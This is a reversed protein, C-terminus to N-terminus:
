TYPVYLAHMCVMENLIKVITPPLFWALQDYTMKSNNRCFACLLSDSYCPHEVQVCAFREVPQCNKCLFGFKLEGNLHIKSCVEKLSECLTYCLIHHSNPLSGEKQHIEVSIYNIKDFLILYEKNSAIQFVVLNKYAVNNQLKWTKNKISLTVLCCFAGRPIFGDGFRLYLTSFVKTGFTEDVSMDTPAPDLLAPMFYQEPQDSLRAMINLHVFLSLFDEYKFLSKSNFEKDYVEALFIKKFIGKKISKEAVYSPNYKLEIIKTLQNFLWQPDSFVVHKLNEVGKYYLLIGLEHFFSLIDDINKQEIYSKIAIEDCDSRLICPGDSQLKIEYQFLMWSIPIEKNMIDNNSMNEIATRIEQAAEERDHLTNINGENGKNAIPHIIRTNKSKHREIISINSCVPLVDDCIIKECELLRECVKDKTDGCLDLHTGVVLLQSNKAYINMASKSSHPIAYSQINALATKLLQTTTYHTKSDSSRWHNGGKFYNSDFPLNLDKSMDFVMVNGTTVTALAPMVDFIEPQGGSDYCAILIDNVTFKEQLKMESTDNRNETIKPQVAPINKAANKLKEDIKMDPKIENPTDSSCFNQKLSIFNFNNDKETREKINKEIINRLRSIEEDLSVIKWESVSRTASMQVAVKFQVLKQNLIGTSERLPEINQNLLVSFLTTKGAAAPGFLLIKLLKVKASGLDNKAKLYKEM